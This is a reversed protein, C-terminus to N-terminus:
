HVLNEVGGDAKLRDVYALLGDTKDLEVECLFLYLMKVIASLHDPLVWNMIHELRHVSGRHFAKLYLATMFPACLASYGDALLLRVM